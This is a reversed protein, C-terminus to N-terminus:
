DAMDNDIGILKLRQQEVFLITHFHIAGRGIAFENTLLGGTVKHMSNMM